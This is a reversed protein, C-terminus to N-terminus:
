LKSDLRWDSFHIKRARKAVYSTGNSIDDHQVFMAVADNELNKIFNKFDRNFKRIAHMMTFSLKMGLSFSFFSSMIVTIMIVKLKKLVIWVAAPRDDDNLYLIEICNLSLNSAFDFSLCSRCNRKVMNRASYQYIDVKQHFDSWASNQAPILTNSQFTYLHLNRLVLVRLSVLGNFTGSKFLKIALGDIELYHLREFAETNFANEQISTINGNRICLSKLNHKEKYWHAPIM